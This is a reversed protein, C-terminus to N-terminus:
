TSLASLIRGIVREWTFETTARRHGAEGLSAALAPDELIRVVAGSVEEPKLPDVLIGTVGDKVADPIGGSRGGVVPKNFVAAELLVIGFGEANGGDVRSNLVFVECARFLALVDSRALAGAFVVRGTLGEEAVQKELHPRMSGDGAIVYVADPVRGLIAPMAQIM